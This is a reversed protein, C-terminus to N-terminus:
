LNQYFNLIEQAIKHEVPVVFTDKKTKISVSEKLIPDNNNISLLIEDPNIDFSECIIKASNSKSLILNKIDSEAIPIISKKKNNGYLSTSEILKNNCYKKITNEIGRAEEHSPVPVADYTIVTINSDVYAINGKYHVGSLARLSFAPSGGQLIHNRFQTGNKGDDLTMITGMILNGEDWWKIIKHSSESERIVSIRRIDESDPHDLEGYWSGTPGLNIQKAYMSNKLSNILYNKKYFRKNRNICDTSQLITDFVLYYLDPEKVVQLNKISHDVNEDYDELIIYGLANELKAM